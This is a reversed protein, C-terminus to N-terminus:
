KVFISNPYVSSNRPNLSLFWEGNKRIHASLMLINPNAGIYVDENYVYLSHAVGVSEIDNRIGNKWLIAQTHNGERIEYGVIYVIGNAVFVSNAYTDYTGDSLTQTTDDIWLKAVRKDNVIEYGSAYVKGEAEFISVAQAHNVGNTLSRDVKNKWVKAIDKRGNSEYGAVYSDNGSVYVSLGNANRKGDTLNQAVGNIWLQARNPREDFFAPSEYGCVYTNGNAVFVGTAAGSSTGKTLIQEIGNKWLKAHVTTPGTTMEAGAVYVDKNDAVFVSYAHSVGSGSALIALDENNKWYAARLGTGGELYVSGAVYVDPSVHVTFSGTVYNASVTITAEGIARATVRGTNDVIAVREDSSYWEIQPDEPKVTATIKKQDGVFLMVSESEFIIPSGIVNVTCTATLNGFTAILKATGTQFTRLFIQVGQTNEEIFLINKEAPQEVTFKVDKFANSNEPSFVLLDALDKHGGAIVNITPEIFAITYDVPIEEEGKQCSVLCSLSCLAFFILKTKM